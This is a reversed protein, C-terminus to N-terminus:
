FTGGSGLSVSRRWTVELCLFDLRKPLGLTAGPVLGTVLTAEPSSGWLSTSFDSGRTPLPPLSSAPGPSLCPMAANPPTKQPEPNTPLLLTNPVPRWNCIGQEQRRFHDAALLLLLTPVFVTHTKICSFTVVFFGEALTCAYSLTGLDTMLPFIPPPCNNESFYTGYLGIKLSYIVHAHANTHTHPYKSLVYIGTHTYVIKIISDCREKSLHSITPELSQFVSSILTDRACLCM